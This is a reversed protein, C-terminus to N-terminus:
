AKWNLRYLILVILCLLKGSPSKVFRVWRKPIFRIPIGLRRLLAGFGIFNIDYALKYVGTM